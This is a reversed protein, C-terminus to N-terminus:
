FNDEVVCRTELHWGKVRCPHCLSKANPRCIVLVITILRPLLSFSSSSVVLDNLLLTDKSASSQFSISSYARLSILKSCSSEWSSLIGAAIGFLLGDALGDATGCLFGDAMGAAMGCLFGDAIGCSSSFFESSMASSSLFGTAMQCSSITVVVTVTCGM